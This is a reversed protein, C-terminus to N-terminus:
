SPARPNAVQADIVRHIVEPPIFALYLLCMTLSFTNVPLTYYILAHLLVGAAIALYRVRPIWLTVALAYELVVVFWAAAKVLWPFLIWQPYDSGFYVYMFIQEFRAGSLFLTSSKDFASWFYILSVQACFLIRVWTPSLEPGAGHYRDFSLSNECSSFALLFTSWALIYRHHHTYPEVGIVYGLFYYVLLMTGAFVWKFIRAHFGFLLAISSPFFFLGLILSFPRNFAVLLTFDRAWVSWILLVLGIRILAMSRSSERKELFQTLSALTIRNAISM